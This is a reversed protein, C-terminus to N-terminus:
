QITCSRCCGEDDEWHNPDRGLGGISHSRKRSMQLEKKRKKPRRSSAPSGKSSIDFDGDSFQTHHPSIPTQAISNAVVINPNFPTSDRRPLAEANKIRVVARVLSEFASTVNVHMKASTEFFLGGGARAFSLGDAASVQRKNAPLDCKNGLVTFPFPNNSPQNSFPPNEKTSKVKRIIHLLEPLITFSDRSSIDFVLVFADGHQVATESWLGRYEEQGATDLITLAYTQGDVVLNCCYSDEVTPDYEDSFTKRIMSLTISSKGVGGDGVVVLTLPIPESTVSTAM